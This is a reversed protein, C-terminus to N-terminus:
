FHAPTEVTPIFQQVGLSLRQEFVEIWAAPTHTALEFNLVELIRYEETVIQQITWRTHLSTASDPQRRALLRAIAVPLDALPGQAPAPNMNIFIYVTAALSVVDFIHINNDQRESWRHALDLLQLSFPASHHSLDATSALDRLFYACKRRNYRQLASFPPQAPFCGTPRGSLHLCTTLSWGPCGTIKSSLTLSWTVQFYRFLLFLSAQSPGPPCSSGQHSCLHQRDVPTDDDDDPIATDIESDAHDPDGIGGDRPFVHGWYQLARVLIGALLWEALASSKPLVARTMAARRRLLAHRRRRQLSKASMQQGNRSSAIDAAHQLTRTASRRM